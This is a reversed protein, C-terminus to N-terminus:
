ETDGLELDHYACATAYTGCYDGSCCAHDCDPHLKENCPQMRHECRSAPAYFVRLRRDERRLPPASWDPPLRAKHRIRVSIGDQGVLEFSDVFEHVFLFRQNLKIPEGVSIQALLEEASLTSVTAPPVLKKKVIRSRVTEVNGRYSDGPWSGSTTDKCTLSEATGGNIEGDFAPASM